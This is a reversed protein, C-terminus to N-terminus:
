RPSCYAIYNFRKYEHPNVERKKLNFIETYIQGFMGGIRFQDSLLEIFEDHSYETTHFPSGHPKRPTSIIMTGDPKLLRRAEKLFLGPNKLHEIGEFSVLLDISGDQTLVGKMDEIDCDHFSSSPRLFNKKAHEIAGSDVDVGYAMASKFALLGTGYGTGCPADLVVMNPKAVLEAFRYRVLNSPEADFIRVPSIREASKSTM